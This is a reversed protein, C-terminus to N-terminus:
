GGGGCGGGGCGGGGCGSASCGSGGGDCNTGCGSAGCGWFGGCGSSGGNGSGRRSKKLLSGILAAILLIVLGAIIGGMMEDGARAALPAGAGLGALSLCFLGSVVAGNRFARKEVIWNRSRNVRVHQAGTGFRIEAPPWIEAPPKVDFWWEYSALTRRYNEDYREGEAQGGRTPGHHLSRGLVHGCLRDWYSHTHVLHLHWAQDVEDSPTVEHEAAMALFLYRKYEEVVRRAYPVSWGHERALRVTFTLKADADDIPFDRIRQWLELKPGVM